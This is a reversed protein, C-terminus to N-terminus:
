DTLNKSASIEAEILEMRAEIEAFTHWDSELQADALEQNLDAHRQELEKLTQM